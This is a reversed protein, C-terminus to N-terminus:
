KNKVDELMCKQENVALYFFFSSCRGVDKKAWKSSFSFFSSCGGVDKKAWKSSFLFFRHVDELM